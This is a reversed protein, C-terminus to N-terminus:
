FIVGTFIGALLLLIEFLIPSFLLILFTTINRKRKESAKYLYSLLLSLASLIFCAGNTIVSFILVFAFALPYPDISVTGETPIYNLSDTYAHILSYTYYFLSLLLILFVLIKSFTLFLDLVKNKKM